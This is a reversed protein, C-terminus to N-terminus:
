NGKFHVYLAGPPTSPHRREYWEAKKTVEQVTVQDESLSMYDSYRTTLCPLDGHKRKLKQLVKILQSILIPEDM